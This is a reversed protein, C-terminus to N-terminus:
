RKLDSIYCGVAPTTHLRVERGAVLAALAEELDRSTPAPRMRGLAQYRDDIRGRYVMEYRDRTRRFLAAEPTIRAGTRAVLAHGPDRLAPIEYGYEALHRRIEKSTADPDPYVLHFRVGRASFARALRSIDPAYRNSVPCDSRVFILVIARADKGTLFPDAPRGDLDVPSSQARAAAAALAVALLAACATSHKLRKV